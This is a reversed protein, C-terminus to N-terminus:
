SHLCSLNLDDQSAVVTIYNRGGNSEAMNGGAEVAGEVIGEVIGGAIGGAIGLEDDLNDADYGAASKATGEAIHAVIDKAPIRSERALCKRM